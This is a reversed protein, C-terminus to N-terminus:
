PTESHELDTWGLPFGMLWEVWTPNLQGGIEETLPQGRTSEAKAKALREPTGPSRYDRATVTPLLRNAEQIAEPLNAEGTEVRRRTTGTASVAGKWDAARATPWMQVERGLGASGDTGKANVRRIRGSKLQRVEDAEAWHGGVSADIAQPTSWLAVQNQLYTQKSYEQNHTEAATPTRWLSSEIGDTRPTSPVLQFLTISRGTAQTRLTKISRSSNCLKKMHTYLLSSTRMRRERLTVVRWKLLVISSSWQSSALLMRRVSMAHDSKKYSELCKLGSGATMKRAEDSGPLVLLSALSDAPLLPPQNTGPSDM